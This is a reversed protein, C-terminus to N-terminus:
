SNCWYIHLVVVIYKKDIRHGYYEMTHYKRCIKHKITLIKVFSFQFYHKAEKMIAM